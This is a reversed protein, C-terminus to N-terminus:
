KNKKANLYATTLELQTPMDASTFVYNKDIMVMLKSFRFIFEEVPFKEQVQQKLIYLRMKSKAMSPTWVKALFWVFIPVYGLYFQPLFKFGGIMCVIFSFWVILKSFTSKEEIDDKYIEDVIDTPIKQAILKYTNSRVLLGFLIFNLVIAIVILM